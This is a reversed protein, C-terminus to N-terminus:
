SAGSVLSYLKEVATWRMESMMCFRLIIKSFESVRSNSATHSSFVSPFIIDSLIRSIATSFFDRKVRLMTILNGIIIQNKKM